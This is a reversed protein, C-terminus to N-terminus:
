DILLGAARHEVKMELMRSVKKTRDKKSQDNQTAGGHREGDSEKEKGFSRVLVCGSHLLLHRSLDENQKPLLIYM